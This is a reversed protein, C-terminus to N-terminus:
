EDCRGQGLYIAMMKHTVRQLDARCQAELKSQRLHKARKSELLLALRLAPLQAEGVDRPLPYARKAPGSYGKVTPRYSAGIDPGALASHPWLRKVYAALWKMIEM